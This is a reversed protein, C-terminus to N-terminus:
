DTSEAGAETRRSMMAISTLRMVREDNQNFTEIDFRVIGM